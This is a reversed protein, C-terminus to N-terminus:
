KSLLYNRDFELELIYGTEKLYSLAIDFLVSDQLDCGSVVVFEIYLVKNKIRIDHYSEFCAEQDLMSNLISKISNLTDDNKDVPDIHVVCQLKTQIFIAEEIKETIHHADTLSMSSDVSIHVSAFGNRSGYEHIILDHYGLVNKHAKIIREIVVIKQNDPREGILLSMYERIMRLADIIIIISIIIGMIRDLNLSFILEALVSLVITTSLIVDNRSDLIGAVLIPSKNAEYSKKYLGWLLGKLGISILAIWLVYKNFGVASANSLNSRVLDVGLYLMLISVLFGGILEFREHGYPHHRDAPKLALRVGIFMIITALIDAFNNIADAMMTQSESIYAIWMKSGFLLANIMIGIYIVNQTKDKM